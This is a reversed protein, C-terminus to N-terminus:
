SATHPRQGTDECFLGVVALFGLGSFGLRVSSGPASFGERHHPPLSSSPGAGPGSGEWPAVSVSMNVSVSVSLFVQPGTCSLTRAAGGEGAPPERRGRPGREPPWGEGAPAEPEAGLLLSPGASNRSETAATDVRGLPARQFWVRASLPVARHILGPVEEGPFPAIAWAGRAGAEGGGVQPHGHFQSDRRVGPFKGDQLWVRELPTSAAPPPGEAGM